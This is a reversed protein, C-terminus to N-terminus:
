PLCRAGDIGISLEAGSKSRVTVSNIDGTYVVKGAAECIEKGDATNDHDLETDITVNTCQGNVTVKRIKSSAVFERVKTAADGCDAAAATNQDTAAEAPTTATDTASCGCLVAASTLLALIAQRSTM